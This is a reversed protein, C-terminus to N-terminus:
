QACYYSIVVADHAVYTRNRRFKVTTADVTWYFSTTPTPPNARKKTRGTCVSTSHVDTPLHHSQTLPVMRSLVKKAYADAKAFNFKTKSNNM